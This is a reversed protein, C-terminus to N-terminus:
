TKGMTRKLLSRLQHLSRANLVDKKELWGRRAQRARVAELTTELAGMSAPWPVNNLARYIPERMWPAGQHSFLYPEYYHFTFLLPEFDALPRPDLAELGAIMSGCAGTAVLPLDPAIARVAAFMQKQAAAFSLGECSETPENVPELVLRGKPLVNLRRAIDVLLGAYAKFAPADASDISQTTNLPSSIVVTGDNSVVSVHLRRVSSRLM